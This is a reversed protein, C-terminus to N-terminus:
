WLSFPANELSFNPNYYPDPASVTEQWYSLFRSLEEEFRAKKEPTDEYGRSLSEYHHWLSYPTWVILYGAKRLRLCFDVDNLAVKFEENLGGTKEYVDRRVMMCAGTVASYNCCVLPRMMFGPSNKEIGVFVHGAFGGFGLVIGAHQVTDNGYLLKAGVCGVEPRSAIGVMERISGPSLLQTDNNLLLLFEGGARSAAHNNIAAYNFEKEWRLVKVAPYKQKLKRYCAFTNKEESGNEVILVEFNKWDSREYLSNVCRELDKAHDKNPILVSVLPDGKVQYRVHHLGWYESREVDARIHLRDLHSWVALEGAEYAYLKSEPNKATSTSHSRWHYLVKPIHVIKEAKETCRFILDYDQAGDFKSDFAGAQRFLSASVVFLHTIYNHSRLLDPSFDPKLNPEFHDTGMMNIKDEDTYLVDAGTRVIAEAVEYLAAPALLDDHDLLTLYTGTALAAAANTNASIGGNKKLYVVKIRADRAAYEELVPGTVSDKSGTNGAAPSDPGGEARDADAGHRSLDPGPLTEECSADAICLEWNEYSQALVSDLMERLYQEPTRYVPVLISIKPAHPLRMLRQACLTQSDALHESLWQQYKKPGANPDHFLKTGRVRAMTFNRARRLGEVAKYAKTGKIAGVQARLSEMEERYADRERRIQNLEELQGYLSLPEMRGEITVEDLAETEGELLYVPDTTWFEDGEPTPFGNAPVARILATAHIAEIKVKVLQNESPDWRLHKKVPLDKLSFTVSFRGDADTELLQRVSCETTFQEDASYYLTTVASGTDAAAAMGMEQRINRAGPSILTYLERAPVHTDTVSGQWAQEMQLFLSCQEQTFGQEQYFSLPADAGACHVHFYHWIRFVVFSVPVPFDYTWEYDILTWRKGAPDTLLNEAVMDLDTVPLSVDQEPYNQLAFLAGFEETWAFPESAKERILDTWERILSVADEFRGAHVLDAAEEELTRSKEGAPDGVYAFDVHALLPLLPPFDADQANLSSFVPEPDIQTVPQLDTLPGCQSPTASCEEPLPLGDSRTFAWASGPMENVTLRTGAFVESLMDHAWIMRLVHDNGEPYCASKRLFREGAKTQVIDTRLAFQRSRENSFKSFIIHEQANEPQKGALILFSNSFLPFQGCGSLSDFVRTEDFLKLRSRDFNWDNVTLQGKGPLYEDSYIALPLKYDPYPYRFSYETLGAEKLVTELEPRSFTRVDTEPDPYNELGDFARGTHDEMCGAWYKLGLRNEIAIVLRGDEKLHTAILRLFEEFPHETRIYAGAYEFVGILTIYDYKETLDPEIDQFNGVLIRLNDCASHRSANILSRKRSLEVCTVSKAKAALAGTVAGCGSGIELVSQEKTIPLASVINERLHSMHYLVAWDKEQAIVQNLAEEPYEQVLSLLRDEIAGDSYLDEGPYWTEDLIVNGIKEHKEQMNDQM